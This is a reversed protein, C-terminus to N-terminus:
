FTGDTRGDASVQDYIQTIRDISKAPNFEEAATLCRGSMRDSLERNKTFKGIRNELDGDISPDFVFGTQGEEIMEPAGGRCSAIVPVGHSYSEILVRPFADDCLSPIIVADLDSFIEDPNKFGMFEISDGAYRDILYKEYSPTLGRGFVRLRANGLRMKGYRELLYEIGKIPALMGVFGFNIHSNNRNSERPHFEGFSPSYIHTKIRSTRFYGFNLHRDLIFRSVGVAAHVHKSLIKRPMSYFRCRMCQRLCRRDRRYMVSNPCLLYHDRITHVIPLRFKAAVKWAFVSFGALNNSHFIAPKESAIIGSLRRAVFPNYSDLLHWFPKKIAPQIKATRTWYLNPIKLYYNKIGDVLDVTDRDATSVVIPGIGRDRLGTALAEV